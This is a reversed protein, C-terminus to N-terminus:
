PFCDRREVLSLFRPNVSFLSMLPSLHSSEKREGRLSYSFEDLVTPMFFSNDSEQPAYSLKSSCKVSGGEPSLVGSILDLFSTKGSGNGGMLIVAEGDKFTRNLPGLTFNGRSISVNELEIM